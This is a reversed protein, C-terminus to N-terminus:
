RAGFGCSTPGSRRAVGHSRRYSHAAACRRRRCVRRHSARASQSRRPAPSTPTAARRRSAAHPFGGGGRRQPEGSRRALLHAARPHRRRRTGPISRCLRGSLPRPHRSSRGRPSPASRLRARCPTVARAPGSRRAAVRARAIAAVVSGRVRARRNGPEFARAHRLCKMPM